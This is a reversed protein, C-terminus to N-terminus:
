ALEDIESQIKLARRREMWAVALFLVVGFAAVAATQAPPGDLTGGLLSLGVGPIFPLLFRWPHDSLDRRHELQKRYFDVSGTLGLGAPMSQVSVTGRFRLAVYGFAAITLLDGVRELLERSGWIQWAEVLTLVAFLAATAINM